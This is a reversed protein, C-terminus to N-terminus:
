GVVKRVGHKAFATSVREAAERAAALEREREEATLGPQHDHLGFQRLWTSFGPPRKDGFSARITVAQQWGVFAARRWEDQTQSQAAEGALRIAQVLRAYPIALLAEDSM